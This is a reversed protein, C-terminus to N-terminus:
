RSPLASCSPRAVSARPSASLPLSKCPVVARALCMRPLRPTRVAAPPQKAPEPGLAVRAPAGSTRGAASQNSAVGSPQASTSSSLEEGANACSQSGAEGAGRAAAEGGIGGIGGDAAAAILGHGQARAQAWTLQALHVVHSELQKIRPSLKCPDVHHVNDATDAERRAAHLKDACM